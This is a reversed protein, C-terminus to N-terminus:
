RVEIHREAAMEIEKAAYQVAHTNGSEIRQLTVNSEVERDLYCLEALSRICDSSHTTAFVQVNLEKAAGFILRWMNTMVTYHLGTDIEDVLLVGDKCHAIAIAMAMMRWMGDGMSGIPIPHERGAVKIIFGGREYYVQASSQARVQEISEDLFKLAALVRAENPTLQVKDWLSILDTGDLSEATIFQAPTGEEELGGSRRRVRSPAQLMNSDIAGSRNLPIVPVTPQPEGTIHMGLRSVIPVGPQRPVAPQPSTQEKIEGISFAVKREPTQNKASISFTSGIELQHGNFLHSVDIETRPEGRETSTVREGRRWVVNWLAFPDGRSMLLYIAELVSTKGSNNTGVLLNVRELGDMQFNKFSRYGRIQISHIMDVPGTENKITEPELVAM